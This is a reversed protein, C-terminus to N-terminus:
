PAPDLYIIEAARPDQFTVRLGDRLIDSGSLTIEESHNQFRVRYFQQPDLGRPRILPQAIPSQERYAFVVSAGTSPDVTQIADSRQDAPRLRLHYVRGDRLLPRLRKYLAIERAAFDIQRSSWEAIRSMFIWPGGFMYSRTIYDNLDEGPMYRDAYRPPFPYTVGYTAQRTTLPGTDDAAISTVYRQVMNFTMINGGDECNEWLVQPAARQVTDLFANLGDVANAYNSDDPDHTHNTRTCRKVMNEGDQLIWDVNYERIMRLAESAIWERAPRHALCLSRAGYYDTDGAAFWDPHARLAPASPLAEAFPFHLGFKMGLSHVYDSLARLGSPFKAPDARWDGIARAWGLDLVFVEIGLRAATRAARRMTKENIQQDYGWSDWIVYPFRQPDPVPRALAAEVYRHTLHSADDWDGRFLGLFAGPTLFEEGPPVPHFLEDPGGAIELTAGSRSHQARIHARGDFEWGIFLGRNAGDRLVLWTCHQGHAGSFTEAPPGDPALAADLPEFNGEKGGKVWQNVRFTRYSRGADAFRWNVMRAETIWFTRNSRNQLFSRYRLVPQGPHLEFELRLRAPLTQHDLVITQRQAGRDTTSTSESVLRYPGAADVTRDELTFHFPAAPGSASPQWQDGTAPNALSALRFQGEPTLEFAVSISDNSLTWTNAGLLLLGLTPPLVM